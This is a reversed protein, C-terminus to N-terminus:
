EGAPLIRSCSGSLASELEGYDLGTSHKAGLDNQHAWVEFPGQIRSRDVHGANLLM